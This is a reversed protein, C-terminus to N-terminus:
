SSTSQQKLYSSIIKKLTQDKVAPLSKRLFLEDKGLQGSYGLFSPVNTQISYRLFRLEVNNNDARIAKELMTKGKKFHSLKSFPNIVHKAMLMTAGARYGLLLPNNTENYPSLLKILEKCLKESSTASHFKLRIDSVSPDSALSNLNAALLFLCIMLRM